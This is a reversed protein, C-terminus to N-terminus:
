VTYRNKQEWGSLKFQSNQRFFYKITSFCFFARPRKLCNFCIVTHDQVHLLHDEYTRYTLRDPSIYGREIILKYDKKRDLIEHLLRNLFYNQVTLKREQETKSWKMLKLWLRVRKRILFIVPYKLFYEIRVYQKKQASILDTCCAFNYVSYNRYGFYHKLCNRSISLLSCFWFM